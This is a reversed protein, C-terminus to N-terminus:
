AEGQAIYAQLQKVLWSARAPDLEIATSLNPDDVDEQIVRLLGEQTDLTLAGIAPRGAFSEFVFPRPPAPTKPM